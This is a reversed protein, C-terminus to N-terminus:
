YLHAPHSGFTYTFQIQFQHVDKVGPAGDDTYSYQARIASFENPVLTALLTGRWERDNGEFKPVGFIDYRGQIWWNRAVQVQLGSYLGGQTDTVGPGEEMIQAIYETTWIVSHPWRALGRVMKFTVDGGPVTNNKLDENQGWTVSGGLDLTADSTVDFVTHARAFGALDGARPSNFLEDNNGNMVGVQGELFISTPPSYAALAQVENLAEEGFIRNNVVPKDIFPFQHTHLPNHRGFPMFKKGLRLFAGEIQSAGEPMLATPLGFLDFYLEELDFKFETGEQEMAITLDGKVNPDVFATVRLEAEQIFLGSERDGPRPNKTAAGLFLGNVSIAPNLARSIGTVTTTENPSPVKPAPVAAQETTREKEKDKMVQLAKEQQEILRQMRELREQFAKVEKKLEELEAATQTWAPGTSLFMSVAAAIVALLRVHKM